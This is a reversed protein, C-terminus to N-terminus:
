KNISKICEEIELNLQDLRDFIPSINEVEKEQQNEFSLHFAVMALIDMPEIKSVDFHQNYQRKLEEIRRAAKRALAEESRKCTLRHIKGAFPIQITFFDDM